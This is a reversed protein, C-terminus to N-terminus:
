GAMVPKGLVVSGCFIVATVGEIIAPQLKFWIGENTALSVGGLVLLMGNGAWTFADVKRHKIWEYASESVCFIVGAVLGWLPGFPDDIVTFAIAPLLGGVLLARLQQAKGGM